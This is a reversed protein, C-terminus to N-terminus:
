ESRAEALAGTERKRLDCSIISVLDVRRKYPKRQGDRKESAADGADACNMGRVSFSGAVPSCNWMSPEAPKQTGLALMLMELSDSPM